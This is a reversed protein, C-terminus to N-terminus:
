SKCTLPGAFVPTNQKPWSSFSAPPALLRSRAPSELNAPITAGTVYFALAENVGSNSELLIVGPTARQGFFVVFGGRYLAGDAPNGVLMRFRM